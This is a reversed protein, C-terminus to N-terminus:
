LLIKDCKISKDLELLMIDILFYMYNVSFCVSVYM